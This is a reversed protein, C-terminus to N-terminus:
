QGRAHPPHKAKRGITHNPRFAQSVLWYIRLGADVTPPPSRSSLPRGPPLWHFPPCSGCWKTPSRSAPFCRAMRFYKIECDGGVGPCRHFRPFGVTLKPLSNDRTITEPLVTSTTHAIGLVTLCRLALREEIRVICVGFM